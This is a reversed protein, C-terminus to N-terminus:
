GAVRNRGAHKAEYLSVDAAAILDEPRTMNPSWEAVGVSITVQVTAEGFRIGDLEVAGRLREGFVLAGGRDTEPMVIAFEDGGYRAVCDERRAQQALQAAIRQLVHDGGLHGHQDNIEKFRDVDILLLCLRHLHRRSRSIETELMEQLSRRNRVQTLGDVAMTRHVQEHYLSEPSASDLLKFIAGGVAVLDGTRLPVDERARVPQGNVHTGNTSGLDRLFVSAEGSRISCHVRSIGGLPVVVDCHSERGITLEGPRLEIRRGLDPGAIMVLCCAPWTAPADPELGSFLATTETLPDKV